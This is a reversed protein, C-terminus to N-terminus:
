HTTHLDAGPSWVQLGRATLASCAFTLLICGPQGTYLIKLFSNISTRQGNRSTTTQRQVASIYFSMLLQPFYVKILHIIQLYKRGGTAQTKLTKTTDM